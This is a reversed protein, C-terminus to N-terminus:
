EPEPFPLYGQHALWRLSLGYGAGVACHVLIAEGLEAESAVGSVLGAILGLGTSLVVFAGYGPPVLEEAPGDPASDQGMRRARGTLLRALGGVVVGVVGIGLWIMMGGFFALPHVLVSVTCALESDPAVRGGVAAGIAPGALFAGILVCFTLGAPREPVTRM